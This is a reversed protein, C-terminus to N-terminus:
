TLCVKQLSLNKFVKALLSLPKLCFQTPSHPKQQQQQLKVALTKQLDTKVSM